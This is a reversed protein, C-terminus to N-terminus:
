EYIDVVNQIYRDGQGTNQMQGQILNDCVRPDCLPGIYPNEQWKM